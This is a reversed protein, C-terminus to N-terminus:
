EDDNRVVAGLRGEATPNCFEEYQRELAAWAERAEQETNYWMSYVFGQSNEWMIWGGRVPDILLAYAGFDQSSGLEEDANGDLVCEWNDKDLASRYKTSDVKIYTGAEISWGANISTGAEISEVAMIFVGATVSESATIFTGANIFTGATIHTGADIFTGAKIYEGSEIYTGAEIYEGAEIFGGAKIFGGAQIFRDAQIFGGAEIYKDAKIYTGDGIALRRCKISDVAVFGLSGDTTVDGDTEITPNILRGNRVDTATIHIDNTMAM